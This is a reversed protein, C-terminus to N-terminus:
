NIEHKKSRMIFKVDITGDHNPEYAFKGNFKYKFPSRKLWNYLDKKDQHNIKIIKM